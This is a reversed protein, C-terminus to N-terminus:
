NGPPTRNMYETINKIVDFCQFEVVSEKTQVLLFNLKNEMNLMPMCVGM